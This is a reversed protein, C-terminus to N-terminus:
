PAAARRMLTFCVEGDRNSTLELAYGASEALRAAQYLGIGLGTASHVPARLVAQAVEGPVAKGSDCVRFEPAADCKLTVRVRVDAGGARKALANQLLNDAVNDFLARPVQVEPQLSAAVFEVGQAQYQRVLAQWWDRVPTLQADGEGPHQLKELTSSLRQTIAPLQRRILAQLQPSDDHAAVSCLVNLSQLLNKVDHTLRAGTEHVAQLYSAERLKQERLKAAYFEALLQGLLLLHWQLAPSTRYRSFITLELDRSEYAVPYDTQSGTEGRQEAARWAAGAVWPLRVLGAVGEALFREPRAEAQSLEALFHLWREVPLGISFLYRSFFVNLGAFGTRPNWALGIAFITGAILFVTRTLAELYGVRALTMLTFSGLVVTGLVLMVFISYFFDIAQPAESIVPETPMVAIALLLVPLGYAAADRIEGLVERRPAIEPLIVIALLALLYLLVLLYCRRQWRAHHLFVKGGVLGALVVVWFALLWWDLWLMVATAGLVILGAQTLSLRHEGRLFPQWLLLLGLHALLLARAWGDETGRLVAVHLLGLMLVVVLRWHRQSLNWAANGLRTTAPLVQSSAQM